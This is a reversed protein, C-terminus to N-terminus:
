VVNIEPRAIGDIMRQFSFTELDLTQYRGHTVLEAIARGVAPSQQLGHGSFGNAFVLNSIDPHFGLVANQDLLNYAYHGAWAGEMKIAEFAPVRHALVPWVHEEFWSYDVDFDLCDPDNEPSPSCGSIFQHGEPRFYVGSPDITLPCKGIDTRCSFSYVFRKRPRVALDIGAWKAVTAAHVGAANIVTGASLRRGELLQVSTVRNGERELGIAEDKLYTVGQHIAKRRFAQNLGYADLWGEGELGISGGALDSVNMWPYARALDDPDLLAVPVGERSQITHNNYLIPIQADQALFLYGNEKLDIDVRTGDVSLYETINRLFDISFQSIRINEPTSFQQRIGGASRGTSGFEYAPDKEIVAIRTKGDQMASLFYAIASGIVGGGIIVTDYNNNSGTVM